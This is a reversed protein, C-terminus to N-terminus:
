KDWYSPRVLARPLKTNSDGKAANVQSQTLFICDTLNAGRIDADRLDAGILNAGALNTNRLNAAILLAGALNEGILNTKTLNAGILDYGSMLSKKNKLNTKQDSSLRMKVFENVQRLISNVKIRHIEIDIGIISKADLNTLEETEKIMLNLEDRTTSSQLFTLADTLYWKMEHLQRIVLFVDFMQKALKPTQQWNHGGYTVQAVKQGAGFCDYATCGKLGNKRLDKHVACSFDSKLNICSKGAEKNTPFGESASFYLAICCFGFCKKCDIKLDKFIEEDYKFERLNIM